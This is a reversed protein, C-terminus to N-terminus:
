SAPTPEPHSAAAVVAVSVLLLFALRHRVANM